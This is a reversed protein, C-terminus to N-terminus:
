SSRTHGKHGPSEPARNRSAVVLQKETHNVSLSALFEHLRKGEFEPPVDFEGINAGSRPRFHVRPDSDPGQQLIAALIRGNLDYAVHIKM